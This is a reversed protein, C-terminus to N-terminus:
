DLAKTVDFWRVLVPVKIDLYKDNPYWFQFEWKM